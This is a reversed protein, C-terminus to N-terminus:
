RREKAYKKLINQEVALHATKIHEAMKEAKLCISANPNDGLDKFKQAMKFTKKIFDNILKIYNDIARVAKLYDESRLGAKADDEVAYNRQVLHDFSEKLENINNQNLSM